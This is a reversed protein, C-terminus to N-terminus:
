TIVKGQLNRIGGITGGTIPDYEIWARMHGDHANAWTEDLYIVPRGVRRNKRTIRLYRHRWEIFRLQEYM